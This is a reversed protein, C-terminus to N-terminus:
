SVTLAIHTASVSQKVCEPSWVCFNNITRASVKYVHLYDFQNWISNAEYGEADVSLKQYRGFVLYKNYIYIEWFYKTGNIYLKNAREILGFCVMLAAKFLHKFTSFLDNDAVVKLFLLYIRIGMHELIQM